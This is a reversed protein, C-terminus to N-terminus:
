DSKCQSCVIIQDELELDANNTKCNPCRYGEAYSYLGCKLGDEIDVIGYPLHDVKANKNWKVRVEIYELDYNYESKLEYYGKTKAEKANQAIVGIGENEDVPHVYYGRKM